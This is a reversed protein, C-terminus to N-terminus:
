KEADKNPKTKSEKAVTTGPSSLELFGSLVCAVYRWYFSSYISQM